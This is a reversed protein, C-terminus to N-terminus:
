ILEITANQIPQNGGARLDRLEEEQVRIQADKDRLQGELQQKTRRAVVIEAEKEKLRGESVEADRQAVRM